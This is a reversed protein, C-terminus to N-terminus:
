KLFHQSCTKAEPMVELRELEIPDKGVTCIGYTGNNIRVLAEEIDKLRLELLGEQSIRAEFEEVEDAFEASDARQVAYDPLVANWNGRLKPDQIAISELEEQISAKREVLKKKFHELQEISIM